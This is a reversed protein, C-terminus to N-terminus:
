ENKKIYILGFERYTINATYYGINAHGYLQQMHNFLILNLKLKLLPDMIGSGLGTASL